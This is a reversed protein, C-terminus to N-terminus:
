LGKINKPPCGGRSAVRQTRGVTVCYIEPVTHVYNKTCM